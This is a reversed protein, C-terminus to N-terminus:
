HVKLLFNSTFLDAINLGQCSVDKDIIKAKIKKKKEYLVM